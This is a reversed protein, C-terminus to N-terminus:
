SNLKNLIVFNMHIVKGFDTAALKGRSHTSFANNLVSNNSVTNWNYKVTNRPIRYYNADVTHELHQVNRNM